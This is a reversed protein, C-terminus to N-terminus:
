RRRSSETAPAPEVHAAQEFCRRAKGTPLLISKKESDAPTLVDLCGIPARLASCRGVRFGVPLWASCAHHPRSDCVPPPIEQIHDYLCVGQCQTVDTCRKGADDMACLCAERNGANCRLCAALAAEALWHESMVRMRARRTGPPEGAAHYGLHVEHHADGHLDFLDPTSLREGPALPLPPNFPSHFESPRDRSLVVDIADLLMPIPFDNRITIGATVFCPRPAPTCATDDVPIPVVDALLAPFPARAATMVIRLAIAASLV